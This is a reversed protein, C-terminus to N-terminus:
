PSGEIIRPPKGVRHVVKGQFKEFVDNCMAKCITTKGIVGVGYLGVVCM